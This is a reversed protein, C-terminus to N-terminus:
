THAAHGRPGLCPSPSSTGCFFPPGEEAVPFMFSPAQDAAVIDPGVCACMIVVHSSYVCFLKLIATEYGTSSLAVTPHICTEKTIAKGYDFYQKELSLCLCLRM